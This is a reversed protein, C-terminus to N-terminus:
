ILSASGPAHSFFHLSKLHLQKKQLQKKKFHARTSMHILICMYASFPVSHRSDSEM